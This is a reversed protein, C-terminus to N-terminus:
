YRSGNEARRPGRRARSVGLRARSAGLRARPAPRPRVRFHNVGDGRQPPGRLSKPQDGQGVGDAELDCRDAVVGIRPEAPDEDGNHRYPGTHRSRQQRLRRYRPPLHHEAILDHHDRQHRRGPQHGLVVPVARMLRQRGRQPGGIRHDGRREEETGLAADGRTHHQRQDTRDHPILDVDVQPGVGRSRHQDRHPKREAQRAVSSPPGM